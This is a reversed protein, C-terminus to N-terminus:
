SLNTTISFDESQFKLFPATIKRDVYIVGDEDRYLCGKKLLVYVHNNLGQNSFKLGYHSSLFAQAMLRGKRTFRFHEYEVPLQAFAVLVKKEIETLPAKFYLSVISIYQYLFDTPTLPPQNITM